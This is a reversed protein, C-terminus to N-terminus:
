IFKLLYSIPMIDSDSCQRDVASDDASLDSGPRITILDADEANLVAQVIRRRETTSVNVLSPAARAFGSTGGVRRVAARCTGAKAPVVFIHAREM